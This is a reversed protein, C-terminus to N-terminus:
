ILFIAYVYPSHGFYLNKKKKQSNILIHLSFLEASNNTETM